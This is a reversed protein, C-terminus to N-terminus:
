VPGVEEEPASKPRGTKEVFDGASKLISEAENPTPIIKAFKAGDCLKLMDTVEGRFTILPKPFDNELESTTKEMAEVHFGDEIYRRITDSIDSFYEKVKGSAYLNKRKIRHLNKVAAEYPTEAPLPPAAKQRNRKRIFAFLLVAAATVLLIILVAPIYGAWDIKPEAQSRIADPNPETSKDAIVSKIEVFIASTKATRTKGSADKWEYVYVPLKLRGTEFPALTFVIGAATAGSAQTAPKEEKVGIIEFPGPDTLRVQPRLEEGADGRLTITYTLRDGITATAPSVKASLAVDALAPAARLSISCIILLIIRGASKRM